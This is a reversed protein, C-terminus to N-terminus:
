PVPSELSNGYYCCSDSRREVPALRGDVAWSIGIMEDVSRRISKFGIGIWGALASNAPMQQGYYICARRPLPLCSQPIDLLGCGASRRGRSILHMKEPGTETTPTDDAPGVPVPNADGAKLIEWRSQTVARSTIPWTFSRCFWQILM